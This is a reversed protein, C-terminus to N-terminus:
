HGVPGRVGAPVARSPPNARPGTASSPITPTPGRATTSPSWASRTAPGAPTPSAGSTRPTRFAYMKALRLATSGGAPYTGEGASSYERDCAALRGPFRAGGRGAATWTPTSRALRWRRPRAARSTRSPASARRRWLTPFELILDRRSTVPGCLRDLTRNPACFYGQQGLTFIVYKAGTQAVDEAYAKVDFADVIKNFDDITAAYPLFHSMLGYHGSAWDSRAAHPSVMGQPAAETGGPLPAALALIAM